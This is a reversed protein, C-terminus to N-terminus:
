PTTGVLATDHCVFLLLGPYQPHEPYIETGIARGDTNQRLGRVLQSHLPQGQGLRRRFARCKTFFAHIWGLGFIRERIDSSGFLRGRRSSAGARAPTAVFVESNQTISAALSSRM